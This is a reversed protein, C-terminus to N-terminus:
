GKADSQFAVGVFGPGTHVAMVSTFDTRLLESPSLEHGAMEALREASAHADAQMVGVRMGPRGNKRAYEILRQLGREETRVRGISRALGEDFALLPRINLIQAAWHVIWPVRGGRALYRTTGLLGALRSQAAASQAAAAAADMGGREALTRAAALVAFGHTLALGGTDVVQVDLGPLSEVAMERAALASDYTGSFAAALTLCLVSKAGADAAERFAAVFDAPSPSATSPAVKMEDALQFLKKTSISGDAFAHDGIQLSLPVTRISYERRLAKPLCSSSDTILAIEPM